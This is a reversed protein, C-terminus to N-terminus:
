SRTSRAADAEALRSRAAERTEAVRLTRGVHTIEVLDAAVTGKPAVVALGRGQRGLRQGAQVIVGLASSEIFSVASLDLIVDPAAVGAGVEESLRQGLSRSAHLDLEGTLITVAPPQKM